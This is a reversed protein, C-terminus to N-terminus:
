RGQVLADRAVEKPEILDGDGFTHHEIWRGFSCIPTPSLEPCHKWQPELNELPKEHAIAWSEMAFAAPRDVFEQIEIHRVWPWWASRKAHGELRHRWSQSIGVYILEGRTGFARYVFTTRDSLPIMSRNRAM